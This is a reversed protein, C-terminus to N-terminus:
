RPERAARMARRVQEWDTGPDEGCNLAASRRQLEEAFGPADASLGPPPGFRALLRTALEDRDEDPLALAADLPEAPLGM